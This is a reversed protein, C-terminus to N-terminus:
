TVLMKQCLFRGTQQWDCLVIGVSMSQPNSQTYYLLYISQEGPLPGSLLYFIHESESVFKALLFTSIRLYGRM